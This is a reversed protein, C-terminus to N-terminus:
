LQTFNATGSDAMNTGWSFQYMDKATCIEVTVEFGNFSYTLTATPELFGVAILGALNQAAATPDDFAVIAGWDYYDTRSFASIATLGETSLNAANFVAQYCNRVCNTTLVPIIEGVVPPDVFPNVYLGLNTPPTTASDYIMTVVFYPSGSIDAQPTITTITTTNGEWNAYTALVNATVDAQIGNITGFFFLPDSALISGQAVCYIALPIQPINSYICNNDLNRFWTDIVSVPTDFIVDASLWTIGADLSFEWPGASTSFEFSEFFGAVAKSSSDIQAAWSAGHWRYLHIHQTEGSIYREVTLQGIVTGDVADNIDAVTQIIPPCRDSIPVINLLDDIILNRCCKTAM